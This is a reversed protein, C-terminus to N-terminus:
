GFTPVQYSKGEPYHAQNYRDLHDWSCFTETDDLVEIIGSEQDQAAGLNSLGVQYVAEGRVERGCDFCKM